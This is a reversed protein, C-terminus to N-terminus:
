GGVKWAEFLSTNDPALELLFLCYWNRPLKVDNLMTYMCHYFILMIVVVFGTYLLLYAIFAELLDDLIIIIIVDQNHYTLITRLEWDTRYLM